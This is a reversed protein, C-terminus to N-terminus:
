ETQGLLDLLELRAPSALAKGIIAFQEFLNAKFVRHDNMPAIFRNRATERIATVCSCTVTNATTAKEHDMRRHCRFRLDAGWSCCHGLGSRLRRRDCRRDVSR